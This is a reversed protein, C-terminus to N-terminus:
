PADTCGLDDGNDKGDEGNGGEVGVDDGLDGEQETNQQLVVTTKKKRVLNVCRGQWPAVMCLSNYHNQNNCHVGTLSWTYRSM